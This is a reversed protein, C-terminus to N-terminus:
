GVFALVGGFLLRALPFLEASGPAAFVGSQLVLYSV